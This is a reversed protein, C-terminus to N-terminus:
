LVAEESAGARLAAGRPRGLALGVRPQHDVQCQRSALTSEHADVTAANAVTPLLRTAEREALGTGAARPGDGRVRSTTENQFGAGPPSHRSFRRPTWESGTLSYM